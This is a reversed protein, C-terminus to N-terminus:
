FHCRAYERENFNNVSPPNDLCLDRRCNCRPIFPCCDSEQGNAVPLSEWFDVGPLSRWLAQSYPHKLSEWGNRTLTEASCTEVSVGDIFVTVYDAFDVVSSLDHSIIIVGRGDDALSRLYSLSERILVDDLGTTPEDAIILRPWGFTATATLVRRAMGGSLQHPFLKLTSEALDYRVLAQRIAPRVDGTALGASLAARKLQWGVTYLPNLYSVSQPVLRIDRGRLTEQLDGTLPRGDYKVIGDQRCNGPLIGLVASALLSKGSGSSGVVALVEGRKLKLSLDIVPYLTEKCTLNKQREFCLSLHEVELLYDAM